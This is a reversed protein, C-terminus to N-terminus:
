VFSVFPTTPHFNCSPPAAGLTRSILWIFAAFRIFPAARSNRMFTGNIAIMPRLLAVPVVGSLHVIILPTLIARNPPLNRWHRWRRVAMACIMRRVFMTTLAIPRGGGLRWLGRRGGPKCPAPRGWHDKIIFRILHSTLLVFRHLIM